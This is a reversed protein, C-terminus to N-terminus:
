AGPSQLVQEPSPPEVDISRGWDRYTVDVLHAPDSYRMRDILHQSDLWIDYTRIRPRGAAIDAPGGPVLSSDAQLRYHDFHSGRVADTGIYDVKMLSRRMNALMNRPELLEFLCTCLGAVSANRRLRLDASLFKGDPVLGPSHAYLIDDVVRVEAPGGPSGPAASGEPLNMTVRGSYTGTYSVDGTMVFRGFKKTTEARVTHVSGATRTAADVTPVFDGLTLHQPEAAKVVVGKTPVLNGCGAVGLVASSAAMAVVIRWSPMMVKGEIRVM